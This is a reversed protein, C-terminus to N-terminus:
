AFCWVSSLFVIKDRHLYLVNLIIPRERWGLVSYLLTSQATDYFQLRSISAFGEVILRYSHFIGWGNDEWIKFCSCISIEALIMTSPLLDFSGMKVRIFIMVLKSLPYVFM